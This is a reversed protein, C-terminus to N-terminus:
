VELFNGQTWVQKNFVSLSKYAPSLNRAVNSWKVEVAMDRGSIFDVEGQRSSFYGLRPYRRALYEAAVTEALQEEANSPETQGTLDLIAWYILPDTFYFKKDKKFRFSDTQPDYAYVTRLAFAHELISVYDQVTHYSMMQTKQALGQLSVPNGLTKVLQLLLEKMFIEQRALKQVDGMIWRQYTKLARAPLASEPGAEALAAPFGGIRMFSRLADLRPLEPWGAQQRMALWEDFLMPLLQLEGSDKAWRGPMLDLGKRLDYSNSGTIIFAVSRDADVAKKISRWWESVFTIEDLFFYKVQRQSRLLEGLDVYDRLDECSYYFCHPSVKLVEGLLVKLWTSKGIQRPGRILTLGPSVKTAPFPRKFPSGRLECLQKDESEWDSKQWFLEM